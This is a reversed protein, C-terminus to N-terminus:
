PSAAHRTILLFAMHSLSNLPLDQVSAAKWKLGDVRVPALMSLPMLQHRHSDGVERDGLSRVAKVRWSHRAVENGGRKYGREDRALVSPATCLFDTIKWLLGVATLAINLDIRQGCYAGAAHICARMTAALSAYSLPPITFLSLSRSTAVTQHVQACSPQGEFQVAVETFRLVSRVVGGEECREPLAWHGRERLTSKAALM